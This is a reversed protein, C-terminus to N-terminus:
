AQCAKHRLAFPSVQRYYAVNYRASMNVFKDSGDRNKLASDNHLSFFLAVEGDTEVPFAVDSPKLSRRPGRQKKKGGTSNCIRNRSRDFINISTHLHRNFFYLVCIFKLPPYFDGGSALSPSSGEATRADRLMQDLPGEAIM